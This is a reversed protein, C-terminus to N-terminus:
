SRTGSLDYTSAGVRRGDPDRLYVTFATEGDYCGRELARVRITERAADEVGVAFLEMSGAPVAPEGAERAEIMLVAGPGLALWLSHPLADRVVELGLVDHYFAALAAVDRTRLALHHVRLSM